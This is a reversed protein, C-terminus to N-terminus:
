AAQKAVENRERRLERHYRGRCKSSCYKARDKFVELHEFENGCQVCDSKAKPMKDMAKKTAESIAAKDKDSREIGYQPNDEGHKRTKAINAKWEDTLLRGTREKSWKAKQADSHTKGYFPNGYKLYYTVKAERMKQLSEPTYHKGGYNPNDKGVYKGTMRESMEKKDEESHKFGISSGAVSLINVNPNLTDIYHQEREICQEPEAYELVEFIPDGYKNFCRQMIINYHDNKNMLHNHSSWRNKFSDSTSGVYHHKTEPWYIKYVGTSYIDTEKVAKM